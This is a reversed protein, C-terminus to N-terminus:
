LWVDLVFLAVMVLAIVLKAILGATTGLLTGWTSKGAAVLQKGGILEGALVGVLPGIFIGLLGFFIGVIAGILGGIAGWRTAGFYKAGIAGSIFDIVYSTIVLAFMAGIVWWSVTHPGTTFVLKHVVGAALILTSGPLLPVVTGILGVVILLIILTWWLVTMHPKRNASNSEFPM